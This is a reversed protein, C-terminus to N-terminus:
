PQKEAILTVTMTQNHLGCRGFPVLPSVEGYSYFGTMACNEPLSSQVIELEEEVGQNLVLRRGVCSILIALQPQEGSFSQLNTLANLAAGEAGDVLNDYNARMLQCKAGTPMNGAFVMSQKDEDINLITRVVTESGNDETLALPFLLASSPLQEAHTGLFQKYLELAPKGDLEFLVNGKAATIERIPGFPRWGGLHGHGIQVADGYFGVVVVLGSDVSDNHWVVTEEFRSGDGALGGTVSISNDLDSTLGSVLESGNVKQGDSIVLVHRLSAKPLQEALLQGLNFACHHDEIQASYVKTVVRDFELATLTLADDYIEAGQIEGSTTCGIIEANPPNSLISNRISNNRMSDRNGFVLVLQSATNMSLPSSWQGESLVSQVVRM